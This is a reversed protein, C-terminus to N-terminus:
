VQINIFSALGEKVSCKATVYKADVLDWNDDCVTGWQGNNYM